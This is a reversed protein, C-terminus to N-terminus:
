PLPIAPIVPPEARPCARANAPSVTVLRRGRTAVPNPSVRGRLRLGLPRGGRVPLAGTGHPKAPFPVAYPAHGREDVSPHILLAHQQRGVRSDGGANIAREWQQSRSLTM